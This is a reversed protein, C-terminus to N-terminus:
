RRRVQIKTIVTYHDSGDFMGRLMRADLVDKKLREDVAIYNIMIKQEGRKMGGEQHTNTSLNTSFSPAQWSCGGKLM